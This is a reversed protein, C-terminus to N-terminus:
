PKPKNRYTSVRDSKELNRLEEIESIVEETNSFDFDDNNDLTTALKRAEAEAREEHKVKKLWTKFMKNLENMKARIQQFKTKEQEVKEEAIEARKEAKEAQKEAKEAREELGTAIDELRELEDHRDHLRKQYTDLRKELKQIQQTKADESAKLKELKEATKKAKQEMELVKQRAEELEEPLSDHLEAVSKNVTKTFDEGDALRQAKRKGRTIGLDAFPEAGIDQLKSGMGKTIKKSVPKGDFDMGALMYHAHLASEDRHVVLGEISTNLEKAVAKVAELIRRDQEEPTLEEAIPQAKSGFTLIGAIGVTADKRARTKGKRREDYIGAIESAQKYEVLTSNLATRSEDVNKLKSPTGNGYRL